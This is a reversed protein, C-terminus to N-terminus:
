FQCVSTVLMDFLIRKAAKSRVEVEACDLQLLTCLHMFVQANGQRYIKQWGESDPLSDPTDVVFQQALRIMLEFNPVAMDNEHNAEVYVAEQIGDNAEDDVM